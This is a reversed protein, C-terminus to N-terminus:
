HSAKTLHPSVLKMMQFMSMDKVGFIQEMEYDCLIIRGDEKSQLENEKIYKWLEKTVEARSAKQVGLLNGLEPSLTLPAHIGKKPEEAERGTGTTQMFSFRRMPASTHPVARSFLRADRENRKM